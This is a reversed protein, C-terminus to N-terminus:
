CPALVVMKRGGELPVPLSGDLAISYFTLPFHLFTSVGNGEIWFYLGKGRHSNEEWLISRVKKTRAPPEGLMYTRIQRHERMRFKRLEKCIGNNKQLFNVKGRLVFKKMDKEKSELIGVEKGMNSKTSSRVDYKMPCIFAMLCTSRKVRELCIQLGILTPATKM